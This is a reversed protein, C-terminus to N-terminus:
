SYMYSHHASHWSHPLHRFTSDFSSSKV